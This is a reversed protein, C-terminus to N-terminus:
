LSEYYEVLSSPKFGIRHAQIILKTGKTITFPEKYVKWTNSSRVNDNIIKYGISAGETLCDITIRSNEVNISPDATIPQEENGEWLQNILKNEPLNPQDGIKILWRDLEACLEKLKGKYKPDDALNHLEHPDNLCDFLEIQSKQERFWQAQVENLQAKDRMRLLEQM